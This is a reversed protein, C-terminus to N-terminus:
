GENAEPRGMPNPCRAQLVQVRAWVEDSIAYHWVGTMARAFKPDAAAQQEMRGIHQEGHRGLLGEIPGAAIHSLDPDNRAQRIAELVMQWQQEPPAMFTMATVTLAADSFRENSTRCHELYGSVIDQLEAQDM